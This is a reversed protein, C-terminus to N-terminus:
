NTKTQLLVAWLGIGLTMKHGSMQFVIYIGYVDLDALVMSSCRRPTLISNNFSDCAIKLGAAPGFLGCGKADAADPSSVRDFSAPEFLSVPCRSASVPHYSWTLFTQLLSSFGLSYRFARPRRCRWPTRHINGVPKVM